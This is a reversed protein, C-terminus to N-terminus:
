ATIRALGRLRSVLKYHLSHGGRICIYHATPIRGLLALDGILDLAKHSAYECEVRLPTGGVPGDPGVVLANDLAGGLALGAAKLAEVESLLAFTRAPAIEAEYVSPTLLVDKVETGIATGRYDVVYTVRLEDDPLACISSGGDRVFVPSPLDSRPREGPTEAIGAERMARVFPSASGDIIPMEGGDCEIVADDISLGALASLLHEVTAYTSGDPFTITTNRSADSRRAEAIPFEGGGTRWVIGTGERGPRVTVRSARGTHIGHGELSCPSALTRRM